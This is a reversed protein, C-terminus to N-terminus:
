GNDARVRIPRPLEHAFVDATIELVTQLPQYVRNKLAPQSATRHDEDGLHTCQRLLQCARTKKVRLRSRQSAQPM